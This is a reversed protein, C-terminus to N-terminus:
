LNAQPSKSGGKGYDCSGKATVCAAALMDPEDSDYNVPIKVVRGKAGTQLHQLGYYVTEEGNHASVGIVVDAPRIVGLLEEETLIHAKKDANSGGPQDTSM